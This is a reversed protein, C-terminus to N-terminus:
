ALFGRNIEEADMTETIDNKGYTYGATVQQANQMLPQSDDERAVVSFAEQLPRMVVAAEHLANPKGTYVARAVQRQCFDYLSYLPGSVEYHFDLAEKLHQLVQDCHRLANQSAKYDKEELAEEGDAAYSFYIDFLVEIIESRNGSVIRRTFTSIQQQDM